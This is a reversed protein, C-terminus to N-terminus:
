QGSGAASVPTEGDAPPATGVALGSSVARVPESSTATTQWSSESSRAFADILFACSLPQFFIGVALLFVSLSLLAFASRM